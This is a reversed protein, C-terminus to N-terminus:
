EDKYREQLLLELNDVLINDNFYASKNIKIVRDESAVSGGILYDIHEVLNPKINFVLENKHRSKMFRYFIFDDQKGTAVRDQLEKLVKTKYKFWELFEVIYQNPIYICQFSLWMHDSSQFGWYAKSIRGWTDAVFGCRIMERNIDYFEETINKFDHCILVDDQLHWIGWTIDENDRIYECSKLWSSLNGWSESDNWLIINEEKIGQKIMSPILYKKVYWLRKNCSHIMYKMKSM